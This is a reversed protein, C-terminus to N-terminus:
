IPKAVETNSRSCRPEDGRSCDRSWGPKDKETALMILNSKGNGTKSKMLKFKKNKSRPRECSSKEGGTRSGVFIPEVSGKCAVPLNSGVKGVNL